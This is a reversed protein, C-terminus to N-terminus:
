VTVPAKYNAQASDLWVRQVRKKIPQWDMDVSKIFDCRDDGPFEDEGFAATPLITEVTPNIKLSMYKRNDSSFVPWEPIAEVVDKCNPPPVACKPAQCTVFSAWSCSMIDAMHEYEKATGVKSQAGFIEVQNRFVFPVEFFHADGLYKEVQGSFDFSFVYQYAREGADTWATAVDRNSCQFIFDRLFRNMRYRDSPFRTDKEYLEMGRQRDTENPLFWDFTKSLSWHKGGWLLPMALGIYAGGDKNAGVILPVRAFDGQEILKFPQDHLGAHTGDIVPGFPMFPWLPSAIDPIDKPLPFPLLRAIIDKSMQAFSLIFDKQPLARLCPLRQGDDPCGLIASWESYFEFAQSMNQFWMNSHSTGSEMIAASFLGRSGRAVAHYTVSFAGASEGAITVRSPDGGFNRINRQVWQMAARQDQVGYNGTSGDPDERSLEPLAMFGFGNLRYNHSVVVYQHKKVLHTGDYLTFELGDGFIYGGGYIWFFVPLNSFSTSGSPRFVNVFLCDEGGIHLNGATDLQDCIQRPVKAQRTKPAWSETFPQPPRFRNTGVPAAAFPMGLFCDVNHDSNVRVYGEVNGSETEVVPFLPNAEDSQGVCFPISTALVLTRM